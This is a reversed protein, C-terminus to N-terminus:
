PAAPPLTHAVTRLRARSLVKCLNKAFPSSGEITLLVAISRGDGSSLAVNQQTPPGQRHSPQVTQGGAGRAGAGGQRREEAGGCGGRV